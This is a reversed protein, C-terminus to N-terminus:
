NEFFNCSLVNQTDNEYVSFVCDECSTFIGKINDEDANGSFYKRQEGEEKIFADSFDTM